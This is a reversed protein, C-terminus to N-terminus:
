VSSPTPNRAIDIVCFGTAQSSGCPFQANGFRSVGADIVGNVVTFTNVTIFQGTTPVDIPLVVDYVVDFNVELPLSAITIKTAPGTANDNLGEIVGAVTGPVTGPTPGESGGILTKSFSFNFSLAHAAPSALVTACALLLFALKSQM